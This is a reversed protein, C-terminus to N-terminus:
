LPKTEQGNVIPSQRIVISPAECRQQGRFNGRALIAECCLMHSIASLQYSQGSPEARTDPELWEGDAMLWKSRYFSAVMLRVTRVVNTSIAHASRVAPTDAELKKVIPSCAGVN